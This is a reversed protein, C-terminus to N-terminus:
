KKSYYSNIIGNSFTDVKDLSFDILADGNYQFLPIGSGIMRPLTTIILQNVAGHNLFDAILRGGGVLWLVADSPLKSLYDEVSGSWVSTEPTPTELQSNSSFIAVPKPTYPWEVGFSLVEQYTTRGMCLHTVGEYFSSYGFDEGEPMPYSNLWDLSGNPKAIKGDLSQAIYLQVKAM